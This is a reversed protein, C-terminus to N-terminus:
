GEINILILAKHSTTYFLAIDLTFLTSLYLSFDIYCFPQCFDKALTSFPSNHKLPHFVMSLLAM